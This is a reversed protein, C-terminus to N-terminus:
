ANTDGILKLRLNPEITDPSLWISLFAQAFDPDQIAGIFKGNFYFRSSLSPEVRLVLEDGPNVTPWIAQLQQLWEPQWSMSLRQWQDRTTEILRVAEIKRAYRIVLALPYQQQQYRGNESLLAVDYLKWFLWNMEGQGIPKLDSAPGALVPTTVLLLLLPLLRYKM